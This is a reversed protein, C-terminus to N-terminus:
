EHPDWVGWMPLIQVFNKKNNYRNCKDGEFELIGVFELIEWRDGENVVILLFGNLDQGLPTGQCM